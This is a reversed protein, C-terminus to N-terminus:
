PGPVAMTWIDYHRPTHPENANFAIQNGEPSWSPFSEEGPDSTLQIANAGTSTMVWLDYNGTGARMSAFAIRRGDPSWAPSLDDAPDSTLQMAEGGGAPVVWIDRNGSRDSSFAIQTGDPAWDPFENYSSGGALLESSGGASPVVFIQTPQFMAALSYAIRTGDPSWSSKAVTQQEPDPVSVLLSAQAFPVADMVWLGDDQRSVFALRTADPSWSPFLAHVPDATLQVAEGGGESIWYLQYQGGLWNAYFAIVGGNPSWKPTGAESTNTPGDTLRARAVTSENVVNSLESWNAAEDAAKLAFSYETVPALGTVIFSQPLGASRPAPLGDVPAAEDWTEETITALAYRLDYVEARGEGGDDGPATWTLTVAGTTASVAALDSVQGPPVEDRLTAFSVVNSLQSWSPTEDAVKLAFFYETGQQLGTVTFSEEIGASDPVPVSDVQVAEAWTEETITALAYRLDYTSAWGWTSDDGPATWRLTVSTTTASIAELDTVRNPPVTDPAALVVSVVNSLVSWNPVEDAAKLGFYWSGAPLGSLAFSEPEGAPKPAPLWEVDTASDWRVETLPAASYRISYQAARGAM